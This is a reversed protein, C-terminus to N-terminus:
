KQANAHFRVFRSVSHTMKRIAYMHAPKKMKAVSVTLPEMVVIKSHFALEMRVLSSLTHVATLNSHSSNVSFTIMFIM